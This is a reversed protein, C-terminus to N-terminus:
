GQELLHIEHEDGNTGLHYLLFHRRRAPEFTSLLATLQRQSAKSVFYLISTYGSELEALIGELTRTAKPELEIELASIKGNAAYLVADPLHEQREGHERAQHEAKIERESQWRDAPRRGEVWLRVQNTFYLHRLRAPSPKNYRLALGTARLGAPSLWIWRPEGDLIAASEILALQEWRSLTRYTRERSLRDTGDRVKARDAEPTFRLLLRQLQDFRIAYQQGIWALCALDRATLRPGADSRRRKVPAPSVLPLAELREAM